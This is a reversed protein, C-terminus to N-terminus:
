GATRRTLWRTREIRCGIGTTKSEEYGHTRRRLIEGLAYVYSTSKHILFLDCFPGEFAALSSAQSKDPLIGRHLEVVARVAFINGLNKPVANMRAFDGAFIIPPM